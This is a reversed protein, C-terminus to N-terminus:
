FKIILRERYGKIAEGLDSNYESSDFAVAHLHVPPVLFYTAWKLVLVRM